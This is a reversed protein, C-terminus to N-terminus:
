KVEDLIKQLQTLEESDPQSEKLANLRVRVRKLKKEVFARSADDTKEKLCGLLIETDSHERIEGTYEACMCIYVKGDEFCATEDIIGFGNEFLFKRVDESHSQPQLILRKSKDKVWPAASLIGAILIGGMGAIVIDDAEDPMVFKLGDSLRLDVKDAIGYTRVTAEANELPGKRLDSAVASQVIGDLILAAPLYAHDTGVDALRSGSRVMDAAMKLRPKLKLM